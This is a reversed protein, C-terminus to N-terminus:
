VAKSEPTIALKTNRAIYSSIAGYIDVIVHLIIPIILTESFIYILCFIIGIVFTRIVHFFGQYLHCLGFLASSILVAFTLGVHETLAQLLYGRFILEECVGAAVSLGLTFIALQKKNKPMFWALSSMQEVLSRKAKEDNELTFLSYIFYLTIVILLSLSTLSQWHSTWSLGIDSLTLESFILHVSLFLVPTWLLIIGEIYARSLSISKNEIRKKTRDFLSIIVMIIISAILLSETLQM